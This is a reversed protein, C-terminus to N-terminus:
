FDVTFVDIHETVRTPEKELWPISILGKLTCYKQGIKSALKLALQVITWFNRTKEVSKLAHSTLPIFKLVSVLSIEWNNMSPECPSFLKLCSWSALFSHQSIEFSNLPGRSKLIVYHSHTATVNYLYKHSLHSMSQYYLWSWSHLSM